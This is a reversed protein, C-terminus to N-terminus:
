LDESHITSGEDEPCTKSINRRVRQALPFSFQPAEKLVLKQFPNFSLFGVFFPWGRTRYLYGDTNM